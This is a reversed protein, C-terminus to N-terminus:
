QTHDTMEEQKAATEGELNKLQDEPSLEPQETQQEQGEEVKLKELEEPTLEGEPTNEGVHVDAGIESPNLEVNNVNSAGDFKSM